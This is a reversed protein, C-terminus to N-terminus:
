FDGALAQLAAVAALGATETRLIRPGLAVAQFGAAEISSCEQESFGSEPGVLLHVVDARAITIGSLPTAAGPILALRLTVGLSGRASRDAAGPIRAHPLGTELWDGLAQPPVVQPVVDRACQMCAAEAIRTWHEHRRRSRQADLRPTSRQSNLTVIRRVGLEVAKEVVWDMKDGAPLCQALTIELPSEACANIATLSDILCSRRECVSLRASFRQGQGDFVELTAGAKLRLVVAVYHSQREDLSFASGSAAGALLLRPTM